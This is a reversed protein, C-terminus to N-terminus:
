PVAYSIHPMTKMILQILCFHVNSVPWIVSECMQAFLFRQQFRMIIKENAPYFIFFQDTSCCQVWRAAALRVLDPKLICTAFLWPNKDEFWMYCTRYVNMHVVAM